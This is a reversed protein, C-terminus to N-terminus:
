GSLICSSRDSGTLNWFVSIRSQSAVFAEFVAGDKLKRRLYPFSIPFHFGVSVSSLCVLLVHRVLQGM